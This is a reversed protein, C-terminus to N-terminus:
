RSGNPAPHSRQSPTSSRASTYAFIANEAERTRWSTRCALEIKLTSWILSPQQLFCDTVM